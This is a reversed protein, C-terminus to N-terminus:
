TVPGHLPPEDCQIGWAAPDNVPEMRAINMQNRSPGAPLLGNAKTDGYITFRQAGIVAGVDIAFTHTPDLLWAEVLEHPLPTRDPVPGEADFKQIGTCAGVTEGEASGAGGLRDAAVSTAAIGPRRSGLPRRRGALSCCDPQEPRAMRRELGTNVKLPGIHAHRCCSGGVSPLSRTCGRGFDDGIRSVAHASQKGWPPWASSAVRRAPARGKARAHARRM